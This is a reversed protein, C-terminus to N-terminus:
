YVSPLQLALDTGSILGGHLRTLRDLIEQIEAIRDSPVSLKGSPEWGVYLADAGFRVPWPQKRTAEYTGARVVLHSAHGGGSIHSTIAPRLLQELEMLMQQTLRDTAQQYMEWLADQDEATLTGTQSM